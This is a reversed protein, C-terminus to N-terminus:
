RCIPGGLSSWLLVELVIIFHMPSLVSGQYFGAKVEFKQSCGEGVHVGSQANTYMGQVLLM